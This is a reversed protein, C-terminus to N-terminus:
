VLAAELHALIRLLSGFELFQFSRRDFIRVMVLFEWISPNKLVHCPLMRHVEWFHMEVSIHARYVFRPNQHIELWAAALSINAAQFCTFGFPQLALGVGKSKLSIFINKGRMLRLLNHQNRWGRGKYLFSMERIGALHDPAFNQGRASQWWGCILPHHNLPFSKSYQNEGGCGERARLRTWERHFVKGPQCLCLLFPSFWWSIM